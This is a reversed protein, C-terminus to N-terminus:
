RCLGTGPAVQGRGAQGPRGEMTGGTLYQFGLNLGTETQKAYAELPGTKSYILAVKLDAANAAIAASGALAAATLLVGAIFRKV